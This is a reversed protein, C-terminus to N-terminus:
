FDTSDTENGFAPPEKSPDDTPYLRGTDVEYGLFFCKGTAQGTYRDKLVRLTTTQQIRPDEAQQDRELGIMYHSWFGIARSGKFNRITVRGGEEHPVGDATTLHSVFILIINLEKVLSGIEAMIRELEDKESGVNGGTALATLHDLYYIVIGETHFLFRIRDAIKDWEASGFHDYMHLRPEADILDLAAVLEEQEWGGFRAPIHFRKGAFKGCVRKATEEPQQELFFVAVKQGLTNIDYEVQQTIFDTKGVGTGAGLAYAEGPRRGYTVENLGEHWWPFGEVPAALVRDRIDSITVIGDPRLTKAEFIAARLEDARGAKLMENADKLPLKAVKCQGPKFLTFCDMTAARGADDEDFLLVVEEFGSLWELQAALSKRANNAGLPISVVPWKNGQVQSVSLADIEGETIVVRRGGDRWLHQGYLGAAKIDGRIAFSKDKFRVKQAVLTGSTDRYNAIQVGQGMHDGQRYDWKRCTEEDICRSALRM